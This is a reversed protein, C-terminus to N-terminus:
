QSTFKHATGFRFETISRYTEGPRLVTSPFEPNNPSDAFHEPELAFADGQRYARGSPGVLSGDLLNATYFDVAPETSWVGLTRRSVPEEVLACLALQGANHARNIVFNHDYGNGLVLQSTGDRLRAGISHPTTFDM